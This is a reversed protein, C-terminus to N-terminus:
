NEVDNDSIKGTIQKEIDSLFKTLDRKEPEMNQEDELMAAIKDCGHIVTSHDRGGFSKGIEVLSIDLLKRCLYMAIHRPETINKTRKKGRLFDAPIHFYEAVLNQIFTEDIKPRDKDSLMDGLARTALEMDLNTKELKSYAIVKNLAGELDRINSFFNEAIFMNVDKPVYIEDIQAKKELIAVRTELDPLKLDVIIGQGFRSILRDELTAIEKPPKDSSIVIQKNADRLVNFTHFFEEQTADKQSLFQIDDILLVDLARYKNRFPENNNNKISTIMENMFTETSCYLVKKEPNKEKIFNGISHMLHTKGLGVGGYLFLPNYATTGPNEAVAMATAHALENSKAKVFSDFTYKKVLNSFTDNKEPPENEDQNNLVKIAFDKGTAQKLANSIKSNYKKEITEKFFSNPVIIYFSSDKIHSPIILKIITEYAVDNIQKEIISCANAWIETLNEM